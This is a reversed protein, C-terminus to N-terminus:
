GKQGRKRDGYARTDAPRVSWQKCVGDADAQTCVWEGVPLEVVARPESWVASVAVTAFLLLMAMIAVGARLRLEYRM